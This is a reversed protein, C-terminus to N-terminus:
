FYGKNKWHQWVKIDSEIYGPNDLYLKNKFDYGIFRRKTVNEPSFVEEGKTYQIDKFKKKSFLYFDVNWIFNKYYFRTKSYKWKERIKNM